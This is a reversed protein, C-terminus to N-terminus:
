AKGRITIQAVETRCGSVVEWAFGLCPCLRFGSGSTEQFLVGAEKADAAGRNIKSM